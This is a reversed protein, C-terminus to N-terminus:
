GEGSSDREERLDRVLEAARVTQEVITSLKTELYGHDARGSRLLILANEAAMRIANLPQNLEHALDQIERRAM